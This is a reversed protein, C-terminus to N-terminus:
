EKNVKVEGKVDQDGLYKMGKLNVLLYKAQM